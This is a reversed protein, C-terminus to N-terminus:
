RMFLQRWKRVKKSVVPVPPKNISITTLPDKEPTLVKYVFQSPDEVLLSVNRGDLKSKM